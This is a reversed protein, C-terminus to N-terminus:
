KKSFYIQPNPTAGKPQNTNLAQKGKATAPPFYSQPNPNIAIKSQNANFTQKGKAPASAIPSVNPIAVPLTTSSLLYLQLAELEKIVKDIMPHNFNGVNKEQLIEIFLLEELVDIAEKANHEVAAITVKRSNEATQGNMAYLIDEKNWLKLHLHSFLDINGQRNIDFAFHTLITLMQYYNNLNELEINLESGDSAAEKITNGKRFLKITKDLYLRYSMCLERFKTENTRLHYIFNNLENGENILAKIETQFDDPIKIDKTIYFMETYTIAADAWALPNALATEYGYYKAFPNILYAVGSNKSEKCLSNIDPDALGTMIQSNKVRETAWRMLRFHYDNVRKQREKIDHRYLNLADDKLDMYSQKYLEQGIVGLRQNISETREILFNVAYKIAKNQDKLNRFEEMTDAYFKEFMQEIRDFRKMTQDHMTLLMKEIYDFRKDLHEGLQCIQESIQQIMKIMQEEASPQSKGLIGLAGIISIVAGGIMGIPGLISGSATGAIISGIGQAIAVGAKGITVIQRVLQPKVGCSAMLSGVLEVGQDIQKLTKDLQTQQNTYKEQAIKIDAKIKAIELRDQNNTQLSEKLKYELNKIQDWTQNTEKLAKTFNIFIIKGANIADDTKSVFNSVSNLSNKLENPMRPLSSVSAVVDQTGKVVNQIPNVWNFTEQKIQQIQTSLGQIEYKLPNNSDTLEKALAKAQSEHKDLILQIQEAFQPVIRQMNAKELKEFIKTIVKMDLKLASVHLKEKRFEGLSEKLSNRIINKTNEDFNKPLDDSWCLISPQLYTLDSEIPLFTNLTFKDYDPKHEVFSKKKNFINKAYIYENPSNINTDKWIDDKYYKYLNSIEQSMLTNQYMRITYINGNWNRQWKGNDSVHHRLATAGVVLSRTGYVIDIQQKERRGQSEGNVYLEFFKGDCTAVVHYIKNIDHETTSSIKNNTNGFSFVFKKDRATWSLYLAFVNGENRDCDFQLISNGFDDNVHGVGKPEVWAEITFHQNALSQSYPVEIYSHKQPNFITGQFSSPFEVNNITCPNNVGLIDNVTHNFSWWSVLDKFNIM